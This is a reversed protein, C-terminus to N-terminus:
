RRLVGILYGYVYFRGDILKEINILEKNETIADVIYLEGKDKICYCYREKKDYNIINLKNEEIKNKMKIIIYDGKKIGEKKIDFKINKYVFIDKKQEDDKEDFFKRDIVLSDTIENKKLIDELDNVIYIYKKSKQFRSYEVVGLRKYGADTMKLKQRKKINEKELYGKKLLTEWFFRVTDKKNIGFFVLVDGDEPFTKNIKTYKYAYELIKEQKETLDNENMFFFM